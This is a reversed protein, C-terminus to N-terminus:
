FAHDGAIVMGTGLLSWYVVGTAIVSDNGVGQLLYAVVMGVLGTLVIHEWPWADERSREHKIKKISRYVFLGALLLFIVLAIGGFQLWIQLYLSHPKDVMITNKNYINIKGILDYQPFVLWYTDAGYGILFTNSVLPLSRSWIYGRNTGFREHETFLATEVNKNFDYPLMGNGILSFANGEISFYLKKGHIDVAIGDGSNVRDVKYDELNGSATMWKMEGGDRLIIITDMNTTITIRDQVIEISQVVVRTDVRESLQWGSLENGLSGSLLTNVWLFIGLFGAILFLLKKVKLGRQYWFLISVLTFAGIFAFIGGSSRAGALAQFGLMALLWLAITQWRSKVGLYLTVALPLLMAMYGGAYNPNYLTGYVTRPGFITSTINYASLSRPRILWTGVKTFVIDHGLIQSLCILGIALMTSLVAIIVPKVTRAGNAFVTIVFFLLLYSIWTYLGEFREPTGQFSYNRDGIYMLIDPMQSSYYSFVVDEYRKLLSSVIILGFLFLVLIQYSHINIKINKKLIGITAILLIVYTGNILVEAKFKAFIDLTTFKTSWFLLEGGGSPIEILRVLLPVIGVLVATAIIVIQNYRSYEVNNEM